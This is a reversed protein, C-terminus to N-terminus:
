SAHSRACPQLLQREAESTGGWIGHVPRGTLAYDLCQQRVQCCACVAKALAVQSTAAGVETVPFFLEPDVSRCAALEWWRSSDAMSGM